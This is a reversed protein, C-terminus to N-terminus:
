RYSRMIMLYNWRFIGNMDTITGNSAGMVFVSAGIVAEEMNDTLQGTM